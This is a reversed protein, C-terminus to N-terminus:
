EFDPPVAIEIRKETMEPSIDISGTNVISGTMLVLDPQVTNGKYLLQMEPLNKVIADFLAISPERIFTIRGRYKHRLTFVWWIGFLLSIGIGILGLLTSSEM